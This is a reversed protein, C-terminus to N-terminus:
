KARASSITSHGYTSPEDADEALTDLAAGRAERSRVQMSYAEFSKKGGDMSRKGGDTSRKGADYSKKGPADLSKKGAFREKVPSPLDGPAAFPDDVITPPRPPLSDYIVVSGRARASAEAFISGRNVSHATSEFSPRAGENAFGPSALDWVEGEHEYGEPYFSHRISDARHTTPFSVNSFVSEVQARRPNAFQPRPRALPVGSKLSPGNSGPSDPSGPGMEEPLGNGTYIFSEPHNATRGEFKQWTEGEPFYSDGVPVTRRDDEVSRPSGDETPSYRPKDGYLVETKARDDVDWRATSRPLRRYYWRCIYCYLALLVILASGGSAIGIVAPPLSHLASNAIGDYVRQAPDLVLPTAIAETTAPISSSSSSPTEVPPESTTTPPRRLPDTSHFGVFTMVSTDIILGTATPLAPISMEFPVTVTPEQRPIIAPEAPEAPETPETEQRAQVRAHIAKRSNFSRM